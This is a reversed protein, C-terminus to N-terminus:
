QVQNLEQRTQRAHAFFGSLAERQVQHRLAGAGRLREAFRETLEAFADLAALLTAVNGLDVLGAMGSAHDTAVPATIRKLRERETAKALEQDLAQGQAEADALEKLRDRKFEEDAQGKQRQISAIQSKAESLHAIAGDRDRQMEIFQQQIQLM